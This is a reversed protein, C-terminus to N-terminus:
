QHLLIRRQELRFAHLQFKSGLRQLLNRVECKTHILTRLVNSRPSQVGDHLPHQILQAKISRLSFALM